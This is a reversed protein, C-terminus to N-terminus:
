LSADDVTDAIDGLRESESLRRRGNTRQYTERNDASKLGFAPAHGLLTLELVRVVDKSIAARTVGWEIAVETESRGSTSALGLALSCAVWKRPPRGTHTQSMFQDLGRLVTLFKLACERYESATPELPEIEDIIVTKSTAATV